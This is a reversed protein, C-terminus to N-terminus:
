WQTELTDNSFRGRKQFVAVASAAITQLNKWCAIEELARADFIDDKTQSACEEWVVHFQRIADQELISFVPEDFYDFSEGTVFDEWMNIAEFAGTKAIQDFSSAFELNEIIRNRIRQKVLLSSVDESM